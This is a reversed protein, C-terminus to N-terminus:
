REREMPRRGCGAVQAAVMQPPTWVVRDSLHNEIRQAVERLIRLGWYGGNLYLTPWHLVLAIVESGAELQRMIEGATGDAAIYRDAIRSCVDADIRENYLEMMHDTITGPIHVCSPGPDDAEAACPTLQVPEGFTEHLFYWCVDAGGRPSLARRIARVYSREQAAGFRLPSTMGSPELGVNRLKKVAYALYEEMEDPSCTTSWEEESTEGLGGTGLDLRLTHTVIEPSVDFGLNALRRFRELFDQLLQPAVGDIESDIAGKGAPCPVLSLKGRLGFEEALDSFQELLATPITDHLLELDPGFAIQPRRLHKLEVQRVYYYYLNVFPAVDDVLLMIPTRAAASAQGIATGNNAHTM